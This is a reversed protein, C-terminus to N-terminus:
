YFFYNFYKNSALTRLVEPPADKFVARDTVQIIEMDESNRLTMRFLPIRFSCYMVSSPDYRNLWSLQWVILNM